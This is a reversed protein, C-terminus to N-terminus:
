AALGGFGLDPVSAAALPIRALGPLEADAPVDDPGEATVTCRCNYGCPPYIRGWVTDGVKATFGDLAAHAPRVRDDGATRYTWFPLAAMVEPSTMQEFRGNQYATQVNTQFVANIQTTTLREIGAKDTLADVAARFDADTGGNKLIDALANKIQEILRVDSIGSVTFAQKKYRQALGDFAARSMGILKLVREIAQTSPVSEFGLSSVEDFRPVTATTALKFKKGPTKKQAAEIVHARGLLDFAALYSATIDTLQGQMQASLLSPAAIAIAAHRATIM